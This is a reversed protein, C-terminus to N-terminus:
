AKRMTVSVLRRPLGAEEFHLRDIIEFGESLEEILEPSFFHVIFGGHEFMDDGRDIGSGFHADDTTRATYTLLGGANLVRRIESVLAKLQPTTLAMCFLMHSYCADFSAEPFPLAERVDHRVCSISLGREGAGEAIADIGSQSYDTATLDFGEGLLYFSDRGQGAGLEVLTVVGASRFQAAAAVAAESPELGFMDPNDSLMSEWHGQQGDLISEDLEDSMRGFM